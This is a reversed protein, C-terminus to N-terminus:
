RKLPKSEREVVQGKRGGGGGVVTLFTNFLGSEGLLNKWIKRGNERTKCKEWVKTARAKKERNSKVKSLHV